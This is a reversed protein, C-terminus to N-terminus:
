SASSGVSYKAAPPTFVSCKEVTIVFAPKFGASMISNGVAAFALAPAIIEDGRKAGFDYLTMCAAMDASTGSSMAINYDYDFLNGWTEELEKVKPGGSIFNSDAVEKLNKKAEESVKLEGFKIRM